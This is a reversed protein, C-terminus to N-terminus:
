DEGSWGRNRKSDSRAHKSALRRERAARGPKTPVRRKPIAGAGAVIAVLREIAAERNRPQDREESAQVLLEGEKTLRPALLSLAREYEAHSLGRLSDLRLRAIAKSNVKNVNQGGPGGSRAFDM